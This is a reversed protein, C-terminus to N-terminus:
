PVQATVANSLAVGCPAGVDQIADQFYLEAGSLGAPWSGWTLKIVGDPNTFVPQSLAFPFPVLTGCKFAVPNQALSVFLMAPAGPAALQLHLGGPSGAELLGFGILQPTGVAGPLGHGLEIWPESGGLENLSVSVSSSESEASALDCRGDGNLDALAVAEPRAGV